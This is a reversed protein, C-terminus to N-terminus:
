HTKNQKIKRYMICSNDKKRGGGGKQLTHNGQTPGHNLWDIIGGLHTGEANNVLVEIYTPNNKM